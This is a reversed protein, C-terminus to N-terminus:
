LRIFELRTFELSAPDAVEKRQSRSLNTKKNPWIDMKGM